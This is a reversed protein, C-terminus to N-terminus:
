SIPKSLLTGRPTFGRASYFSVAEANTAFIGAFLTTVGHAAAVQEAATVLAAGVGQGRHTDLVVTHIDAGTRPVLIQHSPAPPLLVVEAMGAVAGDVEAVTILLSDLTAEFYRRVAEPDPIRFVEPDLAAHKEANALRLAVLTPVDALTAARCTIPM